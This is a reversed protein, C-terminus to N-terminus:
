IINTGQSDSASLRFSPPWCLQPNPYPGEEKYTKVYGKSLTVKEKQSLLLQM